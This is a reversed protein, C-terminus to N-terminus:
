WFTYGGDSSGTLFAGKKQTLTINHGAMAALQAPTPPVGPPPGPVVPAAIGDFRAGGDYSNPIMITPRLQPQPYTYALPHYYAHMPTFASAYYGAPSAAQSYMTTGVGVQPYMQQAAMIAPIQQDYPPPAQGPYLQQYVAYPSGTAAAVPSSAAYAAAAPHPPAPVYGAPAQPAAPYGKKESM